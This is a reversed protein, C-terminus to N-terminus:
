APQLGRGPEEPEAPPLDRLKALAVAAARSEAEKKSKGQGRGLEVGLHHVACEYNRDHDPGSVSEVVYRPSQNSQIQLIEQLDGKPNDSSSMQSVREVAENFIRLVLERAAEFGGDLFVAGLVAEFADALASARQRGGSLEEGHSLVLYEGLGLRRAQAALSHRNVLQARAKTLAGEGGGPLRHYLESSLVLQLVADGLYELRQNSAPSGGGVDRGASPHTLALSLIAPDM